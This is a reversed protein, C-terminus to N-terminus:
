DPLAIELMMPRSQDDVFQLSQAIVEHLDTLATQQRYEWGTARAFLAFDPNQQHVANPEIGAAVMDDAIQQLAHNQWILLLIKLRHEAAVSAEAFTYQFGADGAIAVVPRDPLALQVGIAAPLGYGLTGFGSPHFWQGPTPIVARSLASYALQTMDSCVRIDPGIVDLLSTSVALHTRTVPDTHRALQQRVTQCWRGAAEVRDPTVQPLTDTLLPLVAGLDASMGSGGVRELLATDLNVWIQNDPLQFPHGWHDTESFETGLMLACDSASLMACVPAASLQGGPYLSHSGSIVGAGASTCVVPAGIRGALEVVKGAHRRCGGGAIILPKHAAEIRNALRIIADQDIPFPDTFDAHRSIPPTVEARLVSLPIHLHVPGPRSTTFLNWALALQARLDTISEIYSSFLTFPTTVAPQDIIEHLRALHHGTPDLDNVASIVLMPVSDSYAQAMATAINTVGPGTITFCVGPKGLARAYGDAMFGAGQEHRTLIHRIGSGPLGRYLEITHTGPIGFVTDVGYETLLGLLAEGGRM